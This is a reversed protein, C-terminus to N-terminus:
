APGGRGPEPSPARLSGPLAAATHTRNGSAGLQAVGGATLHGISKLAVVLSDADASVTVDIRTPM